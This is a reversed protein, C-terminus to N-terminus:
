RNQAHHKEQTTLRFFLFGNGHCGTIAKAVASLSRYTADQYVFGDALVQISHITGRYRRHLTTGPKPLRPDRVTLTPISATERPGKPPGLRLDADNALLAAQRQARQSLDGEALAQLRWLIRRCLWTKNNTRPPREGYVEAYRQRIAMVTTQKLRSVELNLYNSMAYKRWGNFLLGV